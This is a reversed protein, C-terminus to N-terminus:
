VAKGQGEEMTMAVEGPWGGGEPHGRGDKVKIANASDRKSYLAVHELTGPILAHADTPPPMM